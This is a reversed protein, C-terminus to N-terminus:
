SYTWYWFWLISIAKSYCRTLYYNHSICSYNDMKTIGQDPYGLQRCIVNADREDFGDDCITGWVNNSCLEVRGEDAVSGGVLRVDGPPCVTCLMSDCKHCSLLSMLGGVCTVGADSSHTCSNQQTYTCDQLRTETGTCQFTTFQVPGFGEDFYASRRSVTGIKAITILIALTRKQDALSM